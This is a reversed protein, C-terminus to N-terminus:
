KNPLVSAPNIKKGNEEIEFHLHAGTTRGTLGVTGIQTEPTVEQSEKVLIKNLHAYLSKSGDIHKVIVARGLGYIDTFASEVLGQALPKVPTNLDARVDLAKHAPTYSQSVVGSVPWNFELSEGSELTTKIQSGPDSTKSQTVAYSNAAQYSSGIPASLLLVLSLGVILVSNFEEKTITIIKLVRKILAKSFKLGDSIVAKPEYLINSRNLLSVNASRYNSLITVNRQPLFRGRELRLSKSKLM